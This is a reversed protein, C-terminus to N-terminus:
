SGAATSSSAGSKRAAKPKRSTRTTPAVKKAPKPTRAAAAPKRSAATSTATGKAPMGAEGTGNLSGSSANKEANRLVYPYVYAQDAAQCFTPDDLAMAVTEPTLPLPEGDEDGVGEWARIGRRLLERTLQDGAEEIDDPDIGLADAAAKRAARVAKITIPEFEVRVGPLIEIWEAERKSIKFM